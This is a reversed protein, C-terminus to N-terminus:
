EALFPFGYNGSEKCEYISFLLLYEFAIGSVVEIRSFYSLLFNIAM